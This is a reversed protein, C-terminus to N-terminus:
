GFIAKFLEGTPLGMYLLKDFVFYVFICWIVPVAVLIVVRRERMLFMMLLLFLVSSLYYGIVDFLFVSALAAVGIGLALQWKGFPEDPKNTASLTNIFVMIACPVMLAAWFNPVTSAFFNADRMLKNVKFDFSMLFFLLTFLCFGSIVLLQGRYPKTKPFKGYVFALVVLIAFFGVLLWLPNIDTLFEGIAKMM